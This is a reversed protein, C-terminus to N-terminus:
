RALALASARNSEIKINWRGNRKCEAMRDDCEALTKKLRDGVRRSQTNIKTNNKQPRKYFTGANYEEKKEERLINIYLIKKAEKMM